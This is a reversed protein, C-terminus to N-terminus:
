QLRTYTNEPNTLNGVGQTRTYITQGDETMTVICNEWNGLLYTSDVYINRANWALDQATWRLNDTQTINRLKRDGVRVAGNHLVKQWSGSNIETFYGSDNVITIVIDGRSWVGNLSTNIVPAEPEVIPDPVAAIIEDILEPPASAIIEGIVEPPASAIIEDIPMNSYSGPDVTREASGACGALFIIFLCLGPFWKKM